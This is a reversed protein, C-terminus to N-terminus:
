ISKWASGLQLKIELNLRKVECDAEYLERALEPESEERGCGQAYTRELRPTNYATDWTAIRRTPMSMWSLYGM